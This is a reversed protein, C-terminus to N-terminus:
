YRGRGGWQGSNGGRNGGRYGGRNGGRGQYGGNHARQNQNQCQGGDFGRHHQPQPHGGPGGWNNHNNFPHNNNMQNGCGANNGGQFYGHGPSGAMNPPSSYSGDYNPPPPPPPYPVQGGQFPPPPPQPFTQGAYQGQLHPPPPPPPPQFGHANNFAPPAQPPGQSYNGRGNGDTGYAGYNARGAQPEVRNNWRQNQHQSGRNYQNPQQPDGRGRDFRTGHDYFRGQDQSSRRDRNFSGESDRSTPRSDDSSSHGPTNRQRSSSPAVAPTDGFRRKREERQATLRELHANRQEVITRPCGHERMAACFKPSWGYGNCVTTVERTAKDQKVLQGLPDLWLKYKTTEGTPNDATPKYALDINDFYDDIMARVDDSAEKSAPQEPRISNTNIPVEPREILPRIMYSAPQLHWASQRDGFMNPLRYTRKELPNGGRAVAMGAAFRKRLYQYLQLNICGSMAWCNILMQLGNYHRTDNEITAEAACEVLDEIDPKWHAAFSPRDHDNERRSMDAYLVASVVLLTAMRKRAARVKDADQDIPYAKSISLLLEAV